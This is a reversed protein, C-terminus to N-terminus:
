PLNCQYKALNAFTVDFHCSWVVSYNHPLNMAPFYHSDGKHHRSPMECHLCCGYKGTHGAMGSMAASGPSDATSFIVLPATRIITNLYLDFVKLGERQLATVHYLSPSLFSDIEGPKNPGPIIAGPIVFM